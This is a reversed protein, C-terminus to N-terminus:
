ECVQYGWRVASIKGHTVKGPSIMITLRYHQTQTMNLSVPRTNGGDSQEEAARQWTVLATIEDTTGQFTLPLSTLTSIIQVKLAASPPSKSDSIGLEEWHHLWCM